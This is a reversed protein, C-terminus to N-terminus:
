LRHASIIKPRNIITQGMQDIDYGGPYTPLVLIRKAVDMGSLVHGFAAYGPYNPAADLTPAAGVCIFFDGMATGPKNRAMSVTGDVHKIHTVNTPEHKIPFFSDRVASDIGGQVLGVGPHSKSRAARYFYKGNFKGADVYKLFNTATIPAHITDVGIVITGMTTDIAVKVLGRQPPAASLPTSVLAALAALAIRRGIM